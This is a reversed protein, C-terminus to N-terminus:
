PKTTLEENTLAYWTNQLTHVHELNWAFYITRGNYVIGLFFRTSSVFSALLEYMAGNHPQTKRYVREGQKSFGFKLLWEETIPVPKYQDVGQKVQSIIYWGSEILEGHLEVINGIRLEEAKM